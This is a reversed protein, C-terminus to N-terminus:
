QEGMEARRHRRQLGIIGNACAPRDPRAILLTDPIASGDRVRAPGGSKGDRGPEVILFM